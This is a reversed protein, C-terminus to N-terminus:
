CPQMKKAEEFLRFLEEIVLDETNGSSETIPVVDPGPHNKGAVQAAVEAFNEFLEEFPVGEGEPDAVTKLSEEFGSDERM